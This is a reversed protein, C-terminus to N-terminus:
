GALGPALVVAALLPGALLLVPWRGPRGRRALSHVVAAAGLLALTTADLAWTRDADPPLQLRNVVMAAGVVLAAALLALQGVLDGAGPWRDRCRPDAPRTVPSSSVAAARQYPTM